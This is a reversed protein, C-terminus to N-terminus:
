VALRIMDSEMLIRGLSGKARLIFNLSRLMIQDRGVKGPRM